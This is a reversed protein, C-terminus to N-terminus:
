RKRGAVVAFSRRASSREGAVRVTLTYRGRALPRRICAKNRGKRGAVSFSRVARRRGRRRVALNVTAADSLRFTACARRGRLFRRRIALGSLRVPCPRGAERRLWTNLQSCGNIYRPKRVESLYRARTDAYHQIRADSWFGGFIPSGFFSSEAPWDITILNLARIDYEEALRFYNDLWAVSTPGSSAGVNAPTAEGFQIPLGLAKAQDLVQRTRREYDARAGESRRGVCCFDGWYSIGFYDVYERGPYFQSIPIVGDVPLFLGASHWVFAVNEVGRARLREVVHRYAAIYVPPPGYQGTLLDFEYGIRLFVATKRQKLWSAVQDIQPDLAGSPVFPARSLAPTSIAGFSLALNLASNPRRAVDAGVKDLMAQLDAPPDYLNAYWMTGAPDLGTVKTYDDVAAASQQGVTVLTKGPPVLRLDASAPAAGAALVVAGVVAGSWARMTM